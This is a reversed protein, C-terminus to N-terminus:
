QFCNVLDGATMTTDEGAALKSQTVGVITSGCLILLLLAALRM